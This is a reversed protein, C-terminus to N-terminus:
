TTQKASGTYLYCYLIHASFSWVPCASLESVYGKLLARIAEINGKCAALHMPTDGANVSSWDLDPYEAQANINADYSVLARIAELKDSWVAYHLATLGAHNGVDVLRVVCACPVCLLM